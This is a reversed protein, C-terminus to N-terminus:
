PSSREDLVCVGEGHLQQTQAEGDYRPRNPEIHGHRTPGGEDHSLSLELDKQIQTHLTLFNGENM